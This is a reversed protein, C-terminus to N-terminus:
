VPEGGSELLERASADAAFAAIMRELEGSAGASVPAAGLMMSLVDSPPAGTWDGVHALLDGVPLMAAGTFRMHQTIMQAHHDRCRKLYAILEDDSLADPDIAQIERHTKISAPKATEDWERLQERWLKGRIVEDARQFRAPIESEDVLKVARYAFGNVYAMDMTDLLM